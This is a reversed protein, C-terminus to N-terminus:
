QIEISEDVVETKFVEDYFKEYLDFEEEDAFNSGWDKVEGFEDAFKSNIIRQKFMKSKFPQNIHQLAWEKSRGITNMKNVFMMDAILQATLEPNEYIVGWDLDGLPLLDESFYKLGEYRQQLEEFTM